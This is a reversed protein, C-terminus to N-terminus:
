LNTIIGLCQKYFPMCQTQLDVQATFPIVRVIKVHELPLIFELNKLDIKSLLKYNDDTIHHQWMANGTMLYDNESVHKNVFNVILNLHKTAEPQKFIFTAVFYKGWMFMTRCALINNPLYIRPNDLVMYPCGDYNEGKSIKGNLPSQYQKFLADYQSKLEEINKNIEQFQICINDFIKKRTKFFAESKILELENPEFFLPEM